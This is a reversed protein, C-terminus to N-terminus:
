RVLCKELVVSPTRTDFCLSTFVVLVDTAAECVRELRVSGNNQRESSSSCYRRQRRLQSRLCVEERQGDDVSMM